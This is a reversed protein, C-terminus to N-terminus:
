VAKELEPMEEPALQNAKQAKFYGPKGPLAATLCVGVVLSVIVAIYAGHFAEAGLAAQLGFTTWAVNAIWSAFMTIVAAVTSRKWFLGIVTMIFMPFAWTFVWNIAPVVQPQFNSLAIAVAGVVVIAIRMVLTKEKESAKPKYLGAYLDHAFITAPCLATMAFTSLLAGLFSAMLLTVIWPPLLQLIMAPASLMAGLSTGDPTLLGQSDLVLAAMGMLAPIICFLGNLPGALWLSKKVTKADKAAIATQLGMQSIGQFLTCCLVSPIAFGVILNSNGFINGMWENGMTALETQVGSWGQPLYFFLAIFAIIMSVYMLACNIMNLWSVEKMGALLVYLIGFVGGVIAGLTYPWGTLAQFTIAIAQTELCLCGFVMPAMVCAVLLRTNKGYMKGFLDPVTPTGIRRIWPGTCQTIVVMMVTCAIGFWVATSGMGYANETTGWIHASGLMTLALTVGVHSVSLGRGALAFGASTKKVHRQRVSLFIGVGVITVIEYIIVALLIGFNM